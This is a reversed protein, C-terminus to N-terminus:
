SPIIIIIWNVLIPTSEMGMILIIWLHIIIIWKIEKYLAAKIREMKDAIECSDEITTPEEHAVSVYKQKSRISNEYDYVSLIAKNKTSLQIYLNLYRDNFDRISENTYITYTKLARFKEDENQRYKNIM